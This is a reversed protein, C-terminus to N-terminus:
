RVFLFEASAEEVTVGDVEFAEFNPLGTVRMRNETLELITLDLTESGDVVVVQDGSRTWTGSFTEDGEIPIPQNGLPLGGATIAVNLVFSGTSSVMNPDEGFTVTLNYDDGEGTLAVPVPIAIQSGPIVATGSADVQAEQLNWTGAVQPEPPEENEGCSIVLFSFFALSFISIKKMFEDLQNIFVIYHYFLIKTNSMMIM